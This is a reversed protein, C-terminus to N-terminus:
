LSMPTFEAPVGNLYLVNEEFGLALAGTSGDDFDLLLIADTSPADLSWDGGYPESDVGEEGARLEFRGSSLLRLESASSRGEENSFDGQRITSGALRRRWDELLEDATPHSFQVSNALSEAARELAPRDAPNGALLFIAANGAEGAVGSAVAVLESAEFFARVRGGSVTPMGVPELVLDNDLQIPGALYSGLDEASARCLLTAIGLGAYSESGLYYARGPGPVGGVWGEPVVFSVGSVKANVRTGANHVEGVALEVEDM